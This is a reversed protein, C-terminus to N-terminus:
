QRNVLRDNVTIINNTIKQIKDFYSQKKKLFLIPLEIIRQCVLNFIRSKGSKNQISIKLIKKGISQLKFTNDSVFHFVIVLVLYIWFLNNGFNGFSMSITDHLLVFGIFLFIFIALDIYISYIYRIVKEEMKSTSNM